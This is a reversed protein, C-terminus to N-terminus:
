RRPSRRPDSVTAHGAGAALATRAIPDTRVPGTSTDRDPPTATDKRAQALTTVPVRIVDALLTDMGEDSIGPLVVPLQVVKRLFAWGPGPDDGHQILVAKD